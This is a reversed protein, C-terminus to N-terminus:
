TGGLLQNRKRAEPGGGHQYQAQAKRLALGMLKTRNAPTLSAEEPMRPPGALRPHRRNPYLTQMVTSTTYFKDRLRQTGKGGRLAHQRSKDQTHGKQAETHVSTSEFSGMHSSYSDPDFLQTVIKHFKDFTKLKGAREREEVRFWTPFADRFISEMAVKVSLVVLPLQFVIRHGRKKLHMEIESFTQTIALFVTQRDEESLSGTDYESGEQRQLVHNRLVVWYLYHSVLGILRKMATTLLVQKFTEKEGEDINVKLLHFPVAKVFEEQMEQIDAMTVALPQSVEEMAEALEEASQQGGTQQRDPSLPPFEGQDKAAFAGDTAGAGAGAAAPAPAGNM